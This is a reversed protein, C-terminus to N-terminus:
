NTVISGILNDAGVVTRAPMVLSGDDIAYTSSRMLGENAMPTEPFAFPHDELSDQVMFHSYKRLLINVMIMDRQYGRKRM